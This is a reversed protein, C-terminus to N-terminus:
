RFSPIKIDGGACLIEVESLKPTHCIMLSVPQFRTAATRGIVARVWASCHLELYGHYGVLTAIRADVVDHPTTRQGVKRCHDLCRGSRIGDRLMM